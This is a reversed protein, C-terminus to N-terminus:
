FDLTAESVRFLRKMTIAQLIFFFFNCVQLICIDCVYM